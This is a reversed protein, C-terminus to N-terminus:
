IINQFFRDSNIFNYIESNEYETELKKNFRKTCVIDDALLLYVGHPLVKCVTCKTSKVFHKDGPILKGSSLQIIFYPRVGKQMTVSASSPSGDGRITSAMALCKSYSDSLWWEFEIEIPINPVAAVIDDWKEKSLLGARLIRFTKM